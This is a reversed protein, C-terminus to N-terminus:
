CISVEEVGHTSHSHFGENVIGQTIGLVGAAIGSFCACMTTMSPSAALPTGTSSIMGVPGAPKEVVELNIVIWEATELYFSDNHDHYV